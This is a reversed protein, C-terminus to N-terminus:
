PGDRGVDTLMVYGVRIAGAVLAGGILLAWFFEPAVLWGGGGGVAAGAAVATLNAARTTQAHGSM